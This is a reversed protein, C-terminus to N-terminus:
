KKTSKLENSNLIFEKLSESIGNLGMKEFIVHSSFFDANHVSDRDHDSKLNAMVITSVLLNRGFESSAAIMGSVAASESDLEDVEM